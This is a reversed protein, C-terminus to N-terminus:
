LSPWVIGKSAWVFCVVLPASVVFGDFRDLVGGHGPILDSADKAGFHRKLSSITLDGAQAIVAVVAGLTALLWAASAGPMLGWIAGWLAACIMAGVLGSWTKKPSIRPALRPGGIRRGVFYAAIDTTWVAGLLWIVAALGGNPWDRLWILSVCALGIAAPALGSLVPAPRRLVLALVTVVVTGGLVLYLALDYRMAGTAVMAGVLVLLSVVGEAGFRGGNCMRAWEWAMAAALVAFVADLYPHAFYVATLALPGLVLSSYVRKKLGDSAIEGVRRAM